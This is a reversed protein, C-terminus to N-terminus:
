SKPGKVLHYCDVSIKLKNIDNWGYRSKDSYSSVTNMIYVQQGDESIDVLPMWHQDGTYSSNGGKKAGLVHIIVEGGSYLWEQIEEIESDSLNSASGTCGKSNEMDFEYISRNWGPLDTDGYGSGIIASTTCFCGAAAMTKSHSGKKGYDSPKKKAWPGLDQFYWTYTKGNSSTYQEYEYNDISITGSIGGLSEEYTFIEEQNATTRTIKFNPAYDFRNLQEQTYFMYDRSFVRGAKSQSFDFTGKVYTEFAADRAPIHGSDGGGLKCWWNDWVYMNHQWSNIPYLGTAEEYVQKFTKGDRIQQEYEGFNYAITVLAYLQQRSLDLGNAWDNKVVNYVSQQIKKGVQDVFEKDIYIKMNKMEANTYQANYSGLIGNVYEMVNVEKEVGNVLVKGISNFEDSHSKWQIDADGITPWGKQNEGADGYMLYYKGDESDPADSGHGFQKLYQALSGVGSFQNYQDESLLAEIDEKSVGYDAMEDFQNIVYRMIKEHQQTNEYQQLQYFVDYACSKLSEKVGPYNEKILEVFDDVKIQAEKDVVTYRDGEFTSESQETLIYETTILAIKDTGSVKRAVTNKKNYIPINETFPDSGNPNPQVEVIKESKRFLTDAKTVYMSLSNTTEIKKVYKKADTYYGSVNTNNISSEGTELDDLEEQTIEGYYQYQSDDIIGEPIIEYKLSKKGQYNIEETTSTSSDVFTIIIPEDEKLVDDVMENMFELNQTYNHLTILFNYPLSYGQILNQYKYPKITIGESSSMSEITNNNYDKYEISNGNEAICLELTDPNISFYNIADSDKRDKFTSWPEYILNKVQGTNVFQRKIIISGEMENGPANTKPYLTAMETKIYKDVMNGYEDTDYGFLENSIGQSELIKIALESTEDNILYQGQEGITVMSTTASAAEILDGYEAYIANQQEPMFFNLIAKIPSTIVAIVLEALAGPIGAIILIALFGALGMIIYKKAKKPLKSIIKKGVKKTVEWAKKGNSNEKNEEM